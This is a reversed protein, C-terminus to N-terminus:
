AFRGTRVVADSLRKYKGKLEALEERLEANEAAFKNSREIISKSDEEFTSIRKQLEDIDGARSLDITRLVAVREELDAITAINKRITEAQLRIIGVNQVADYVLQKIKAAQTKVTADRDALERAVDAALEAAYDPIAKEEAIIKDVMNRGAIESELAVIRKHLQNMAVGNGDITEIIENTKLDRERDEPFKYNQFIPLKEITM